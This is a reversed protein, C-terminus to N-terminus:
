NLSNPAALTFPAIAADLGRGDDRVLHYTGRMSGVPSEIPCFSTYRFSEGPGLTPQEGVVGEGRVETEHGDGDSIIWHRTLLQATVDGENTITVEYAFFYYSDDPSSQSEVYASRVSVRIEETVTNSGDM